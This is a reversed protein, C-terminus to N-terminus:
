ATSRPFFYAIMESPPVFVIRCIVSHARAVIGAPGATAGQMVRRSQVHQPPLGVRRM